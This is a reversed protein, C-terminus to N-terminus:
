QPFNVKQWIRFGLSAIKFMLKNHYFYYRGFEQLTGGFKMKYDRVGYTKDPAGAGGWDFINFGNEKSWKMIEYPLLDNPYYKYYKSKSGGYWEYTRNKYCLIYMFGIMVGDRYAGFMKLRNKSGLIKFANVFFERNVLPMRAKNYVEQCIKYSEVVEAESDLIKVKLGEKYARNINTRKRPQIDHWLEGYEKQLDVLITLHKTYTFGASVFTPKYEKTDFLNRIQTYIVKGEVAKIFATLLGKIINLDNNIALPGGWCVCRSSMKGMLGKGEKQVVGSMVGVVKNNRYALICIPEYNAASLFCKYMDPTQFIYGYPHTEVFDEWEGVILGELRNVIKYEIESQEYAM